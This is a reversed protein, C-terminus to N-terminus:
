PQCVQLNWVPFNGQLQVHIEKPPFFTALLIDVAWKFIENLYTIPVHPMYLTISKFLFKSTELVKLVNQINSLVCFPQSKITVTLTLYDQDETHSNETANNAAEYMNFSVFKYIYSIIIPM